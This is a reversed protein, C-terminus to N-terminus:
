KKAEKNYESIKEKLEKNEVFYANTENNCRELSILNLKLFVQLLEQAIIDSVKINKLIVNFEDLSWSVGMLSSPTTNTEYSAFVRKPKLTCIKFEEKISYNHNADEKFFSLVEPHSSTFSKTLSNYTFYKLINRLM